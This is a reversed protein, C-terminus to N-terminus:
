SKFFPQCVAALDRERCGTLFMIDMQANFQKSFVADIAEVIRSEDAEQGAHQLCLAVNTGFLGYRVRALYARTIGCEALVPRLAEKVLREPEGDQEGLFRSRRVFTDILSM